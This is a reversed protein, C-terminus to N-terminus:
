SKEPLGERAVLFIGDLPEPAATGSVAPGRPRCPMEYAQGFEAMVLSGVADDELVDGQPLAVLM